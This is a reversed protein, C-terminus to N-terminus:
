ECTPLHPPPASSWPPTWLWKPVESSQPLCSFHAKEAPHSSLCRASPWLLAAADRHRPWGATTTEPTQGPRGGPGLVHHRSLCWGPERENVGSFSYLYNIGTTDRYPKMWVLPHSNIWEVIEWLLLHCLLESPLPFSRLIKCTSASSPTLTFCYMPPPPPKIIEVEPLCLCCSIINM